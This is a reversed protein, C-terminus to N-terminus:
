RSVTMYYRDEQVPISGFRGQFAHGKLRNKQNFERAYRSLAFKLARSLSGEHLRLLLHFHNTMLAYHEIEIAYRRRTEQLWDIFEFRDDEDHFIPLLKVGRNFVHYVLGPIDIRPPRGMGM